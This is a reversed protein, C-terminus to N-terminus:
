NSGSLVVHIVVGENGDGNVAVNMDKTVGTQYTSAEPYLAYVYGFDPPLAIVQPALSAFPIQGALKTTDVTYYALAKNSTDYVVFLNSSNTAHVFRARYRSPITALGGYIPGGYPQWYYITGGSVASALVHVGKQKDVWIDNTSKVPGSTPAPGLLQWGTIPKGMEAVTYLASYSWNPAVGSVGQALMALHTSDIFVANIYSLDNYGAIDSKLPASWGGGTNYMYELTGGGGDRVNTWWVAITDTASIVAGIYNAQLDLPFSHLNCAKYDQITSFYCEEIRHNQIDVGYTHIIGNSKMVSGMNQQVQGYTPLTGALQWSNNVLHYYDIAPMKMVDNGTDDAFWLINDPARLLHGLHPGWGGFMKGPDYRHTTTITRIQPIPSSQPPPLM